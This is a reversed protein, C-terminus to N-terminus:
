CRPQQGYIGVRTRRAARLLWGTASALADPVRGSCIAKPAAPDGSRAASTPPHRIFPFDVGDSGSAGM